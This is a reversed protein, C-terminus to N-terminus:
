IGMPGVMSTEFNMGPKMSWNPRTKKLESLMWPKVKVKTAIYESVEYGKPKVDLILSVGRSIRLNRTVINLFWSLFTANM